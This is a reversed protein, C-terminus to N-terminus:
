LREPQEGDADIRSVKIGPAQTSLIDIAAVPPGRCKVRRADNERLVAAVRGPGARSRSKLGFPCRPQAKNAVM